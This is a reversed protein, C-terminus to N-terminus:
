KENKNVYLLALIMPLSMSYPLIYRYYTNIPGVICVLILLFAPILLKIYKTKKSEILSGVLYIYIWTTFGISTLLGIVPFYQFIFGYGMLIARLIGPGVYHYDLGVENLVEYKKYYFYWKQADPYFYGYVNNITAEIYTIPKKFLYKFWVKLYNILDETTADKNFTNKIPDSLEPNYNEKVLDYDIVKGIIERDEYEIVNENHVILASTQQIPISLLERPSTPTIEYYNIVQKYGLHICTVVVLSLFVKKLNEKNRFLLFLMSLLVTHIGNHRFSCVLLASVILMITDKEAAEALYRCPPLTRQDSM